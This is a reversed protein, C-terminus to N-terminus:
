KALYHEAVGPEYSLDIVKKHRLKVVLHKAPLMGCSMYNDCRIKNTEATDKCKRSPCAAMYNVMIIHFNLRIVCSEPILFVVNKLM